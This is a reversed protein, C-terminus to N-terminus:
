VGGRHGEIEEFAEALIAVSASSYGGTPRGALKPNYATKDLRYAAIALVLPTGVGRDLM